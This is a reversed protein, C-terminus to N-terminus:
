ASLNRLAIQVRDSGPHLISYSNIPEVTSKIDLLKEMLVLVRKFHGRVSSKASVHITEFPALTVGKTLKVTGKVQDLDFEPEELNASKLVYRPFLAREWQKTM